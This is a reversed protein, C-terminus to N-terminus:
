SRAPSRRRSSSSRRRSASRRIRPPLARPPPLDVEHRRARPAAVRIPRRQRPPRPRHWPDPRSSRRLGPRTSQHSSASRIGASASSSGSRSSSARPRGSRCASRRGPQWRGSREAVSRGARADAGPLDRGAPRAFDISPGTPRVMVISGKAVRGAGARMEAATLGPRWVISRNFGSDARTPDMAARYGPTRVSDFDLEHGHFTPAARWIADVPSSGTGLLERLYADPAGFTDAIVAGAGSALWGAAYNDVRQRGVDLSGEPLGPESNGSAYCLHHLLVVAGPALRVERALFAEGFYQHSDDGGGAAPNLGLGDQTKPYPADRYPSPWGNGHGLYVVISAGRLARKVVPWTADPSFVTVVDSTWRRAERAAATGISRYLDTLGEAPGVIVAVRPEVPAAAVSGPLAAALIIASLIGLVRPM